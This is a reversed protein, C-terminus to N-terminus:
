PRARDIVVSVGTAGIKVPPSLGELDGSQPTANGSKSVRAGVVVDSFKSLSLQPTMAMSDDLTFTIPLDKAQTKLIALPMKPGEAARAFIYVTDTPSVNAALAPAVTVKGAVSAATSSAATQAKAVAPPEAPNTSATASPAQKSSAQANPADVNATPPLGGLARAEAISSDVSGAMPADPPLTAKMREWYMVAEKYDKRDFAATGALALAKWQKPDVKLARMVLELPKGQLGGQTAGLVDAYDALLDASDPVLAIAREFARAADENRQLVYYTRALMVWGQPNNPEKELKASLKGAMTELEARTVEHDREKAVERTAPSFADHNGLAVYFLLAAIPIVSGLIAATWAASRSPALEAGEVAQSEELVRRELERRAEDYQAQPMTGNALDADLEHLQDRLISVNSAERAVGRPKRHGLLPVLVWFMAVAVMLVALYIFTTV